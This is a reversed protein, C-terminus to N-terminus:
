VLFCNEFLIGEFIKWWYFMIVFLCSSKVL